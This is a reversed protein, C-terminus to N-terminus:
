GYPLQDSRLAPQHDVEILRLCCGAGDVERSFSNSRLQTSSGTPTSSRCPWRTTRSATRGTGMWVPSFQHDGRPIAFAMAALALSRAITSVILIPPTVPHIDAAPWASAADRGNDL